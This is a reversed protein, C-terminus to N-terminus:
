IAIGTSGANNQADIFKIPCTISKMYNRQFQVGIIKAM